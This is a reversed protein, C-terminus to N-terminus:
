SDSWQMDSSSLMNYSGSVVAFCRCNSFMICLVMWGQLGVDPEFDHLMSGM